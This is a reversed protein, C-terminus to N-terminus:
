IEQRTIKVFFIFFFIVEFVALHYILKICPLLHVFFFIVNLKM